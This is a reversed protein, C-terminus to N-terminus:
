SYDCYVKDSNITNQNFKTCLHARVSGIQIGFKLAILNYTQMKIAVKLVKDFLIFGYHNKQLNISQFCRVGIESFNPIHTIVASPMEVAFFIWNRLLLMFIRVHSFQMMARGTLISVTHLASAEQAAHCLWWMDQNVYVQVYKTHLQM